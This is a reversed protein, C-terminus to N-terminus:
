EAPENDDTPVRRFAVLFDIECGIDLCSRMLRSSAWVTGATYDGQFESEYQFMLIYHDAGPFNGLTKLGDRNAAIFDLAIQEQKPYVISLGDGLVFELGSTIHADFTADTTTDYRKRDGSRWTYDPRMPSTSLFADLDFMKGHAFLTFFNV